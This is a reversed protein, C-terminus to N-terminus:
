INTRLNSITTRLHSVTSRLNSLINRMHREKDTDEENETADSEDTDVLDEAYKRKPEISYINVIEDIYKRLTLAGDKLFEKYQKFKAERVQTEPTAYPNKAYRKTANKYKDTATTEYQQILKVAKDINPKAAGCFLRM